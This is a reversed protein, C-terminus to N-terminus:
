DNIVELGQICNKLNNLDDELGQQQRKMGLNQALNLESEVRNLDEKLYALDDSSVRWEKCRWCANVTSCPAKLIPRHCEGYQTTVQYMKRRLLETELNKPRHTHAVSGTIDVYTKEKMLEKIESEISQTDIHAYHSLMDPTRHRLYKQIILSRVGANIMTTAVTKRFQHSKFHWLKGDSDCINAKKALSNLWKNFTLQLMVKPTPKRFEWQGNELIQSRCISSTCFLKDYSDGFLQRIYNQQEKIITVLESVNIPLEDEIDYKESKVRLRWQKDRQRLCDLPLNLLEGIRLGTARIILVMRQLQIPLLYINEQLQNWVEEPIYNIEHNNVKRQKLKGKFWYTNINLWGELRCTEFFSILSRYYQTESLKQSRLYYGFEDFLQNDIQSSNLVSKTELFNSFKKICSLQSAISSSKLYKTKKLCFLKTLLKLWDQSLPEFNLRYSSYHENIEMGLDDKINWIDKKLLPNDLLKQMEANEFLHQFEELPNLNSM